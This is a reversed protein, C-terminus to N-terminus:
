LHRVVRFPTSWWSTYNVMPDAFTPWLMWRYMGPHLDCTWAPSLSVVSSGRVMTYPIEAMLRGSRYHSIWVVASVGDGIPTQDGTVTYQFTTSSGSAVLGGHTETPSYPYITFEAALAPGSLALLAATLLVSLTLLVFVRRM